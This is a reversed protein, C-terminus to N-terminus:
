IKLLSILNRLQINLCNNIQILYNMTGYDVWIYNDPICDLENDIFAIINRNQEHYFRGGEESLTVDIEININKEIQERFIKEIEDDKSNDHTPEWQITPGLEIKDFNGIESRLCVLYQRKGNKIRSLLGFTASGIAKFLPQTWSQVERGEIEIDYYRVNFDANEKCTIGYEDVEWDILENIPVTVTKIENFMKYNNMKQFIIPLQTSLDSNFISNYFSIDNFYKSYINPKTFGSLYTIIPLGSLVTRTDMNVLNDIEMLKKIQGLTMWRFNPLIEFDENVEMIMNRNRKKYFRSSQESQIQDYIVNYKSSKEFFDFYAPLKGGHARTFNSKTAQITPSIQVCNINGPEIKAQMLFNLEDDIVKCIIGLYGIEPQFIIPQEGVFKENEFKRIGKISFFSRKRNLIEGNYDDYFWFSSKNISCESIRVYTNNNLEYIWKIISETTNVNGNFNAWSSILKNLFDNM